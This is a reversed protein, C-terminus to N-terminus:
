GGCSTGTDIIDIDTRIMSFNGGAADMIKLEHTGSSGPRELWVSVVCQNALVCPSNDNSYSNAIVTPPGNGALRWIQEGNWDAEFVISGDAFYDPHHLAVDSRGTAGTAGQEPTWVVRFGTGDTNVECISTPPQGYPDEGCDFVVKSGDASISPQLNFTHPSSATLLVPAGWTSGSKNSVYLDRDHPGGSLPYVIRNGGSAIAGYDDGHVLTGGIKVAESSSLDAKVVALCNWGSCEGDFRSTEMLYYEGDPSVSVWEDGGASLGDFADSLSETLVPDALTTRFHKGGVGYTITGGECNEPITVPPADPGPEGTADSPTASGDEATAPTKSGCGCGAVAFTFSPIVLALLYEKVLGM